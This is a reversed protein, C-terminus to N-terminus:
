IKNEIKLMKIKLDSKPDITYAKKWCNYAEKYNKKRLFVNGLADIADYFDNKQELSDSFDKIAENFNELRINCIGKLYKLYYNEYGSDLIKELKYKAEEYKSDIILKKILRLEIQNNVDIQTSSTTSEEIELFTNDGYQIKIISLDDTIEGYDKISKALQYLDGNSEEIRRLFQEGDELIIRNGTKNDFGIMLDDRGDSGIFVMDGYQLNFKRIKFEEDFGIIGIKHIDIEDALFSAINNRYLVPFPHEANFYHMEGTNDDIIGMILSVLMSGDFSVFIQQLENYCENLWEGPTMNQNQESSNTRVIFTNFIVGLVLAGGAGQM